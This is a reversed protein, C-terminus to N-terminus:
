NQQIPPIMPAETGASVAAKSKIQKSVTTDVNFINGQEDVSFAVVTIEEHFKAEVSGNFVMQFPHMDFIEIISTEVSNIATTPGFFHINVYYDGPIIKNITVTEINRKVTQLEGNIVFTDNREGLDDRDLQMYGGEKRPYGIITDLPGEVWIDMDISSEDNWTHTILIETVPDIKGKKAIPNIHIFSLIFLGVFGVLMNFLMDIFALNFGNNKM